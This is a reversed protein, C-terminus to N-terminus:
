NTDIALIFAHIVDVAEDLDIVPMDLSSAM